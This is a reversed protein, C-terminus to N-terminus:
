NKELSKAMDEENTSSWSIHNLDRSLPALMATQIQSPGRTADRDEENAAMNGSMSNQLLLYHGLIIFILVNQFFSTLPGQTLIM